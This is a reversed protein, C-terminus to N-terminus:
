EGRGVSEYFRGEFAIEELPRRQSPKEREQYPQPLITKEGQYGVAAVVIVEYNDPLGVVTRALAADIGGMAHTVLGKRAAELAFYGWAAGTDFANWPNRNGNAFQKRSAFAVLVPARDSWVRNFDNIFSGFRERDAQNKAYIFTWPQENMSSPAWRAAEFLSQLVNDDVPRTDFARPSWRNLILPEINFASVRGDARENSILTSM